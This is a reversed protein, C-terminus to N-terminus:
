LFLYLNGNKILEVRNSILDLTEQSLKSEKLHISKCKSELFGMISEVIKSNLKELTDNQNTVNSDKFDHM